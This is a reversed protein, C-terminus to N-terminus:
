PVSPPRLETEHFGFDGRARDALYRELCLSV